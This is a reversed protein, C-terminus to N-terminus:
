AACHANDKIARLVVQHRALDTKGEMWKNVEAAERAHSTEGIAVSAQKPYDLPASACGAVIAMLLLCCISSLTRHNPISLSNTTM